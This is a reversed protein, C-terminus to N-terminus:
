REPFDHNEPRGSLWVSNLAPAMIERIQLVLWPDAPAGFAEINRRVQAANSMGVLTSAVFPYGFCYRLAVEALDISRSRCFELARQGAEAVAPAAPHWDPAGCETLIGMHLASANIVGIGHKQAFPILVTDMDDILLNYRCYSLITDVPTAEAIRILMRLSYGTIGIYRAKGAEQMRRMAPITEEIIQQADGFEVDHAQLLDVYDTRLRRLSEELRQTICGASFDFEDDGYRGCKTALIVESRRGVLAAGLREEALMHGYYPSTDFFNIGEDIALHVARAGEAPDIKGFVDGLPSAGFGVASVDLDTQGLRRYQMRGSTPVSQRTPLPRSM